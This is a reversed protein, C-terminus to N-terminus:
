SDGEAPGEGGELSSVDDPLHRMADEILRDASFSKRATALGELAAPIDSRAELLSRNFGLIASVIIGAADAPDSDTAFTWSLLVHLSHHDGHLSYEMLQAAVDQIALVRDSNIPDVAEPPQSM